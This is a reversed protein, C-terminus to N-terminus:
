EIEVKKFLINTFGFREVAEKFDQSALIITPYNGIRFVDVHTPISSRVLVRKDIKRGDRKCRPCVTIDSDIYSRSSLCGYSEIQLQLLQGQVKEQLLPAVAGPLRLGVSALQNYSEVRILIDWSHLWVFDGFRGKVKGKVPGFHTGPPLPLGAPAYSKVAEQLTEFFELEVNRAQKLQKGIFTGSLDVLPYSVGIRAWKSDCEPCHVGPLHWPYFAVLDDKYLKGWQADDPSIEFLDM